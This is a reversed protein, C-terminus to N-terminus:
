CPIVEEAAAHLVSAGLANRLPDGAVYAAAARGSMDSLWGALEHFRAKKAMRAARALLGKSATLLAEPPLGLAAPFCAGRVREDSGADLADDICQLAVSFMDYANQLARARRPEGLSLLAGRGSVGFWGLKACIIQVYEMASLTGPGLDRTRSLARREMSNGQELQRLAAGVIARARAPSGLALGLEATWAALLEARLGELWPLPAIQGDDLRDSVLGFVVACHHARRWRLLAEPSLRCAGPRRPDEAAYRPLDRNPATVMFSEFGQAPTETLGLRHALGATRERLPAPFREAVQALTDDIRPRVLDGSIV